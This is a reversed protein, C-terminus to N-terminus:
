ERYINPCGQDIRTCSAPVFYTLYLIVVILVAVVVVASIAVVSSSLDTDPVEPVETAVLDPYEADYVVPYHDSLDTTARRTSLNMECSYLSTKLAVARLEASSPQPGHNYPMVYDYWTQPACPCVLTDLYEKYCGKPYEDCAYMKDEDNGVLQNTSPDVTFPVKDRGTVNPLSVDLTDLLMRMEDPDSYMDINFDGCIVLAEDKPVAGTDLYDRIQRVQSERVAVYEEDSWAQTHTGIIHFPVGLANITVHTFGKASMRDAHIAPHFPEQYQTTIPYRSFVVIGGDVACRVHKIQNSIYPHSPRFADCLAAHQAMVMSEQVVIADLTNM